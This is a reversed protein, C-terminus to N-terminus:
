SDLYPSTLFDSENPDFFHTQTHTKTAISAIPSLKNRHFKGCSFPPNVLEIVQLLHCSSIWWDIPDFVNDVSARKRSERWIEGAILDHNMTRHHKKWTHIIKRSIWHQQIELDMSFFINWESISMKEWNGPFSRLSSFSAKLTSAGFMGIAGSPDVPIEMRFCQFFHSVEQSIFKQSFGM